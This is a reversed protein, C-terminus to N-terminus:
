EMRDPHEVKTGSPPLIGEKLKGSVPSFNKWFVLPCYRKQMTWSTM